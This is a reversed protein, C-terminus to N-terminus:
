EDDSACPTAAAKAFAGTQYAIQDLWGQLTFNPDVPVVQVDIGPACRAFVYRTRAVHPTITLVVVRHVEHARVYDDLLLAEGKTTFPNPTSCTVNEDACVPLDAARLGRRTQDAPSVSILLAASPSHSRLDEAVDLRAETPPGIVYILDAGEPNGAPPFVYTAFATGILASIAAFIAILWRRLRRWHRM